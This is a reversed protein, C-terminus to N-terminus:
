LSQCVTIIRTLGVAEYALLAEKVLLSFAGAPIMNAIHATM